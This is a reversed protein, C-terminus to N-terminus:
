KKAKKTTKKKAPAKKAPKKKTAKKAAKKAKRPLKTKKVVKKKDKKAAKKDAKVKTAAAKRTKKPNGSVEVKGGAKEIKKQAAASVNEVKVTVKKTLEGQSLIKVPKEVNRILKKKKLTEKDVETGNKFVELQSVNVVQYRVKNPSKFGKLKPMRRILPTQGGEFGPRRKGGSRSSQGKMGRGSYTGKSANGRGVRKKTKKKSPKVTNQKM